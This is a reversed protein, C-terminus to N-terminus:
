FNVKVGAGLGFDSHYQTLVNFYRAVSFDLGVLWEEKSGTDYEFESFTNLRNTLQINKILKLRLEGSTDVRWESNFNFPLLYRVGFIGVNKKDVWNMGAFGSFFRNVYREYTVEVDYEPDDVKQWGVQWQARLFNKSDRLVLLGDNMQSLLSSSANFFKKDLYLKHRNELLDPRIEDDYSIIRAMGSKAHYLIHCHFFWDHQENAYFEIVRQGMPPVDVTHKLPSYKGQGNLVRFFHGHLHMPHHMMTKNKLIFRIIEGRKIKIANDASLIQNNISWIYREMDGTLNLEIERVSHQAPLQTSNIAQLKKYPTQPTQSSSSHGMSMHGRHPAMKKGPMTMKYFNPAAMAPASIRRKGRGLWISSFGTGDQASARLEFLGTRPVTVMVDYTEAVAMLFHDVSVPKVAMGDSAVIQMPGGAYRLSFYSAAAANIFQLKVKDGPQAPVVVENKGNALFVDYAVDSIDMGPMRQLSQQLFFNLGKNKIAAFLNQNTGKQTSYFDNGSKLTRLVEQPNVNTWDSLVVVEAKDAPVPNAQEIVIGGYVGRQEQLGTHSHYWHTGSQKLQFEFVHSENPKIPMHNVYPVGDQHNPLLIGHWHVSTEVTLKNTVTIKAWDGKKFFLTPAPISNNVAMAVVEEGALRVVKNTITLDYEVTVAVASPVWVFVLIFVALVKKVM